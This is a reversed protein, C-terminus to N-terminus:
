FLMKIPREEAASISNAHQEDMAAIGFHKQETKAIFNRLVIYIEIFVLIVWSGCDHVRQSLDRVLKRRMCLGNDHKLDKDSLEFWDLNRSIQEKQM